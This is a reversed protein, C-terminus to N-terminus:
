PPASVEGPIAWVWRLADNKWPRASGRAGIAVIMEGGCASYLAMWPGHRSGSAALLPKMRVGARCEAAPGMRGRMPQRYAAIHERQLQPMTVNQM